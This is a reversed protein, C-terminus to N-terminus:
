FAMAAIGAVSAIGSMMSNKNAVQSNYADTQANYQDQGAGSYDAGGVSRSTNFNPTQMQGVQQGGLLANMENLPMQRQQMQEAIQKQRLDNQYNALGMNQGFNQQNAGAMIGFNQQNQGMAQQWAQQQAQNQFEGQGRALQYQNQQEQGGQLIANFMQRSREDGLNQQKSQWGRGGVTAGMNALQTDLKGQAQAQQPALRDFLAQEYRQRGADGFMSPDLGRMIGEGAGSTQFQNPDLGGAAGPDGYAQLNTWDFPKALAEGVRGMQDQALQSKGQQIAMQSDLAAQQQPNLTQNMTWKTVPKGTAPDIAQSSSWSENGWATNIDPRNAWDAATQAAQTSAQTAEAQAKYDPAPPPKPSSGWGM